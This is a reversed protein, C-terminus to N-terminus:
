SSFLFVQSADAAEAGREEALERYPAAEVSVDTDEVGCDPATTLRRHAGCWSTQPCMGCSAHVAWPCATPWLLPVATVPRSNLASDPFGIEAGAL